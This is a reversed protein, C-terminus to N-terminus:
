LDIGKLERLIEFQREMVYDSVIEERKFDLRYEIGVRFIDEHPTIHRIVGNTEVEGGPLTFRVNVVDGVKLQSKDKVYVGIGGVSIDAMRGKIERDSTKIIVEVEEEPAVRVFKRREQPLEVFGIIELVATEQTYDVEIIKVAVTKPLRAHKLYVEEGKKFINLNCTEAKISRNQVEIIRSKCVVPVQKYYTLLEFDRKEEELLKGFFEVILQREGQEIERGKEKIENRLEAIYKTYADEVISLYIEILEILSKVRPLDADEKVLHDIYDRIMNLTTQTLVKKLDIEYHALRYSLNYLERTPDKQFSFLMIYLRDILTALGQVGILKPVDDKCIELFNERFVDKYDVFFQYDDILDNWFSEIKGKDM